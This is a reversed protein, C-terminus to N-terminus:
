NESQKRSARSSTKSASNHNPYRAFPPTEGDSDEDSDEPLSKSKPKVGRQGWLPLPTSTKMFSAGTQALVVEEVYDAATQCSRACSFVAITGWPPQVPDLLLNSFNPNVQFEFARRSGCHECKPVKELDFKPADRCYLPVTKTSFCYRIIQDPDLALNNLYIIHDVDREGDVGADILEEDFSDADRSVKKLPKAPQGSSLTKAKRLRDRHHTFQFLREEDDNFKNAEFYSESDLPYTCIPVATAIPVFREKVM